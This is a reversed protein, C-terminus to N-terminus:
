VAAPIRFARHTAQNTHPFRAIEFRDDTAGEFAGLPARGIRHTHFDPSIAPLTRIRAIQGGAVIAGKDGLRRAFFEVTEQIATNDGASWFVIVYPKRRLIMVKGYDYLTPGHRPETPHAHFYDHL